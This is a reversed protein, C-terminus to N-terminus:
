TKEPKAKLVVVSVVREQSPLVTVRLRQGPQIDFITLKKRGGFAAKDQARIRVTEEIHAVIEEDEGTEPRLHLMGGEGVETVIYRLVRTATGAARGMDASGTDGSSRTRTSPDAFSALPLVLLLCLASALASAPLPIRTM